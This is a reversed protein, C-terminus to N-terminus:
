VFFWVVSKLSRLDFPIHAARYALAYVALALPDVLAFLMAAGMPMGDYLALVWTSLYAALFAWEFGVWFVMWLCIVLPPYITLSVQFGGVHVPLGNWAMKVQYIGLAVCLLTIAVWALLLGRAAASNPAARLTAAFSLPRWLGPTADPLVPM